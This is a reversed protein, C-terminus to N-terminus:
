AVVRLGRIWDDTIGALMVPAFAVLVFVGAWGAWDIVTRARASRSTGSAPWPETIASVLAPLFLVAHPRIALAMATTLASALRSWRGPWSQPLMLGMAVLFAVHWDREGTTEFPQSLYFKLFALYGILGPVAGGLKRRSWCVLVIGLLVVCGSDFAYFSTTQGWGFVKGLLWFVYTEGPFNYAKIDRYPLIGRDWSMALVSFTDEDRSWPWTLYHPVWAALFGGCTVGLAMSLGRDWVCEALSNVWALSRNARTRCDWPGVNSTALRETILYAAVLASAMAEVWCVRLRAPMLMWISRSLDPLILLVFFRLRVWSPPRSFGEGDCDLRSRCSRGGIDQRVLPRTHRSAGRSAWSCWGDFGDASGFVITEVRM